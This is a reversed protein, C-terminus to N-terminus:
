YHAKRTGSVSIGHASLGPDLLIPGSVSSFGCMRQTPSARTTITCMFEIRHCIKTTIKAPVLLDQSLYIM